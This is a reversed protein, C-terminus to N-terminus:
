ADCNLFDGIGHQDVTLGFGSSWLMTRENDLQDVNLVDTMRLECEGHISTVVNMIRGYCEPIRRASYPRMRGVYIQLGQGSVINERTYVHKGQVVVTRRPGTWTVVSKPVMRPREVLVNDWVQFREMAGASEM